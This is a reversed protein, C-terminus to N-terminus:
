LLSNELLTQRVNVHFMQFCIKFFSFFHMVETFYIMIMIYTSFVSM